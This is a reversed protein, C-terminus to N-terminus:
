FLAPEYNNWDIWNIKKVKFGIYKEAFNVAKKRSTFRRVAFDGDMVVFEFDYKSHGVEALNM